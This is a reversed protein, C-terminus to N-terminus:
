SFLSWLKSLTMKTFVLEYFFKKRRLLLMRLLTIMIFILKRPVFNAEAAPRPSATPPDFALSLSAQLESSFPCARDCRSRTWPPSAVGEPSDQNGTREMRKVIFISVNYSSSQLNICPNIERNGKLFARM